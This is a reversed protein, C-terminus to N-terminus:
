WAAWVGGRMGLHLHAEGRESLGQEESEGEACGGKGIDGVHVCEKAAQLWSARAVGPASVWLVRPNYLIIIIIYVAHLWHRTQVAMM